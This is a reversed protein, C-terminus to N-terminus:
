RLFWPGLAACAAVYVITSVVLLAVGRRLKMRGSPLERSRTRPNLADLRRDILRNLSM